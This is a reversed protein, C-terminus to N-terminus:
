WAAAPLTRLTRVVHDRRNRVTRATVQLEAAIVSASVGAALRRVLSLSGEDVGHALAQAVLVSVM